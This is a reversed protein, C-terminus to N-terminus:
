SCWSEEVGVEGDAAEDGGLDAGGLDGGGEGEAGIERGDEAAGVVDGGRAEVGGADGGVDRVHLAGEDGGAGGDDGEGQGVERREHGERAQDGRADGREVAGEGVGGTRGARDEDIEGRMGDGGVSAEPAVVADVGVGGAVGADGVGERVRKLKGAGVVRPGAGEGSGRASVRRSRRRASARQNARWRRGHSPWLRRPREAEWPREAM